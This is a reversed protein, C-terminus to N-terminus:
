LRKVFIRSNRSRPPERDKEPPLRDLAAAEFGREIFWHATQTTLVFLEGLGEARAHREAMALLKDGRGSGRYHDSVAFCALEMMGTSPYPYLAACGVIGGDREDVLFRHIETEILERPRSVLIGREELPQILEQIGSIDEATATRIHEYNEDTM